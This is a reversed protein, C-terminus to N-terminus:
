STFSALPQLAHASDTKSMFIALALIRFLASQTFAAIALLSACWLFLHKVLLCSSLVRHVFDFCVFGPSPSVQMFYTNYENAYEKKRKEYVKKNVVEGMYEVVFQNARVAEKAYLGWGRKDPTRKCQM